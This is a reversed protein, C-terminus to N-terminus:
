SLPPPITMSSRIEGDADDAFPTSSRYAQAYLHVSIVYSVFGTMVSAVLMAGGGVAFVWVELGGLALAIGFAIGGVVTAILGAAAGVVLSLGWATFYPGKNNSIFSTVHSLQFADRASGKVALRVLAAPLLISIGIVVVLRLLLFLAFVVPNWGLVAHLIQELILLAVAPAFYGITVLVPVLGENFLKGLESWDPLKADRGELADCLVRMVYGMAVFAFFVTFGLLSFLGGLILKGAAGPAKFAFTFSREIRM